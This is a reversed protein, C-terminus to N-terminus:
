TTLAVGTELAYMEAPTRWGLTQRPRTNLEDAVADLDAQSHARLDTGKPFYQRLLGNTNENSGRQWPSHPDCFYVPVGTKITFRQHAALEKGQDWTLTRRLADPLSLIRESLASVVLETSRGEPLALLMVFRTKREVLTGIQSHQRAGLILDGEWHGPVARDEAEAPRERINIMNTLKGRTELRGRPKRSQRKTRLYATLEKRLAGRTQVFLSQYITEHSAQMSEDHPYHSKLHQAIQQPSWRKELKKEIARRLEPKATIKAERPRRMAQVAREDARWARYAARGGNRKVERSICSVNRNLSRAIARLSEGREIGARIEEREFLKLHVPARREARSRASPGVIAYVTSLACSVSRAIQRYDVGQRALRVLEDVQDASLRRRHDPM